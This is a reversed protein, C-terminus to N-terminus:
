MLIVLIFMIASLGMLGGWILKNWRFIKFGDLMGFPILNFIALWINIQAAVRWINIQAVIFQSLVAAISFIVALIINVIPGAAGIQGMDKMPVRAFGFGRKSKKAPLIMVAGPAAFVFGFLSTVIALLLGMPWMRFEAWLNKKQAVFKHGLEHLIFALGVVLLSLSIYILIQIFQREAFATFIERRFLIMAFAFAIALAAITLQKIESTSFTFKFKKKAM